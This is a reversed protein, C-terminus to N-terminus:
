QLLTVHTGLARIWGKLPFTFRKLLVIKCELRSTVSINEIYLTICFIFIDLCIVYFAIHYLNLSIIYKIFVGSPMLTISNDSM